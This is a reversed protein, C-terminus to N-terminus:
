RVNVRALIIDGGDSIYKYGFAAPSGWDIIGPAELLHKPKRNTATENAREVRRRGM